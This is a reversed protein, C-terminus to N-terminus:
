IQLQLLGEGGVREVIFALDDTIIGRSTSLYMTRYRNRNHTKLSLSKLTFFRRNSPKSVNVINSYFYKHTSYKIYICVKNRFSLNKYFKLLKDRLKHALLQQVTLGKEFDAHMSYGRIVGNYYFLSVLNLLLNSCHVYIYSYHCKQAVNIRTIFDSVLHNVSM